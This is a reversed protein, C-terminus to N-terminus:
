SRGGRGAPKRVPLLTTEKDSSLVITTRTRRIGPLSKLTDTILAELHRTDRCRVKLLFDDDGATHHCELIEPTARVRKLFAGRHRPHELIVAIFAALPFGAAYPDLVATFGRLLGRKQLRRVRDAAAPPTIGLHQALEAWSIRGNGQLLDMLKSDNNQDM